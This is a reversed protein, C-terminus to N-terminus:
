PFQFPLRQENEHSVSFHTPESGQEVVGGSESLCKIARSLDKLVCSPQGLHQRAGFVIHMLLCYRVKERFTVLLRIGVGISENAGAEKGRTPVECLM